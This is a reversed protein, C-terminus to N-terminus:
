PFFTTKPFAFATKKQQNLWGVTKKKQQNLRGVTVEKKRNIWADLPWNKKKTHKTDFPFTTHVCIWNLSFFFLFVWAFALLENFHTSYLFNRTSYAFHKWHRCRNTSNKKCCHTINLLLDHFSFTMQVSHKEIITKPLVKLFFALHFHQQPFLPVIQMFLEFDPSTQQSFPTSNLTM